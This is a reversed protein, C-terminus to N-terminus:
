QGWTLAAASGADGTGWAPPGGWGTTPPMPGGRSGPSGTATPPWMPGSPPAHTVMSPPTPAFGIPPPGAFAPPLGAAQSRQLIDTATDQDRTALAAYAAASLNACTSYRDAPDKAMGRAIVADFAVPIGPRAASPRPIAQNLHAGIVSVQDG